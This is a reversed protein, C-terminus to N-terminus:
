PHAAVSEFPRCATRPAPVTCSQPRYHAISLTISRLRPSLGPMDGLREPQATASQNWGNPESSRPGGTGRAPGPATRTAGFRDDPAALAARRAGPAAGPPGAPGPRACRRPSRGPAPAAEGGRRARRGARRATRPMAPPRGRAGPLATGPAAATQPVPRSRSSSPASAAAGTGLAAKGAGAMVSGAWARIRPAGQGRSGSVSPPLAATSHRAARRYLAPSPGRTAARDPRSRGEGPRPSARTFGRHPDSTEGGPWRQADRRRRSRLNRETALRIEPSLGRM